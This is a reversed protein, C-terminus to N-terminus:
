NGHPRCQFYVDQYAASNNERTSYGEATGFDYPSLREDSYRVKLVTYGKSDCYRAMMHESNARGYDKDLRGQYIRLIGARPLYSEEVFEVRTTTCASLIPIFFLILLRTAM